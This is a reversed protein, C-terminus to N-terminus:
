YKHIRAHIDPWFEKLENAVTDWMVQSGWRTLTSNMTRDALSYYINSLGAAAATGGIESVNVTAGGSRKRTVVSRTAAYALRSFVGGTGRRFYRSDENTLSPVVATTMFNGIANDAFARSYRTRYTANADGNSVLTMVGIFPFVVPDFSGLAAARYSDHTTQNPVHAADVTTYNPLVGFLRTSSPDVTADAAGDAAAASSAGIALVLATTILRAFMRMM